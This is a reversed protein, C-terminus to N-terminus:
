IGNKINFCEITVQKRSNIGTVYMLEGDRIPKKFMERIRRDITRQKGPVVNDTAIMVAISHVTYSKGEDVRLKVAEVIYDDLTQTVVSNLETAKLTGTTQESQPFVSVGIKEFWQPAMVPPSLNAKAKDLRTFWKIRDKPVNHKKAESDSMNFFTHAIRAANVIAGAGRVADADGRATKGKPIHHVISCACNAQKAIKAFISMLFDMQDNDNEKLGHCKVLPDLIFLKINNEKIRDIIYKVAKKNEVPAGDSLKALKLPQEYGSDYYLNKMDALTLKHGIAAAAIRNKLEDIPDETNYMWVGGQEHVEDHTLQKGSSISLAELITLLSKGTGGPAVTLTAYKPLYRYGLLWERPELENIRIDAACHFKSVKKKLIDDSFLAEPTKNGPRNLAYNYSNKIIRVIFEPKDNPECNPYWHKLMLQEANEPSIALDRLKCALRYTHDNGGEGQLAPKAKKLLKVAKSVNDTIDFDCLPDAHKEVREKREGAKERIWKPVDIVKGTQRVKYEGKGTVQGPLPVMVPIDLGEGIRNAGIACKGNFFFHKGGSPTSSSLTHPIEGHESVLQKLVESGQKGKKDDVDLVTMESEKLNVCYYAEPFLEEWNKLTELESSSGKGWKICGKHQGKAKDWVSPFIKWGAKIFPRAKAANSKKM